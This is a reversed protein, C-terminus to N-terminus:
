PYFEVIDFIVFSHNPRDTISNYWQLVDRTSKWLNVKTKTRITKIVKDLIQKSIQGIDSKTPSILRCTPKNAFNDKHDRLSIFAEREALQDIRDDLNLSKAIRKAERNLSPVDHPNAKRYTKTINDNLLSHYSRPEMKNFKRTKDASVRLRKDQRINKLDEHLKKQFDNAVYKWEANVILKDLENEFSELEKIYPAAKRSKFGNTEKINKSPNPHLFHWARKRLRDKSSCTKELWRKM